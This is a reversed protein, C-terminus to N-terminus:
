FYVVSNLKDTDVYWRHKYCRYRYGSTQTHVDIDTDADTSIKLRSNKKNGQNGKFVEKRFTRFHTRKWKEM